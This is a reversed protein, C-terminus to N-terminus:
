FDFPISVEKAVFNLEWRWRDVVFNHNEFDFCMPFEVPVCTLEM